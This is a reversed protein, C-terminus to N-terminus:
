VVHGEMKAMLLALFAISTLPNGEFVCYEVIKVELEITSSHVKIMAEARKITPTTTSAMM